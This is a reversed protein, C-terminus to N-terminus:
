TNKMWCKPNCPSPNNAKTEAIKAVGAALPNVDSKNIEDNTKQANM